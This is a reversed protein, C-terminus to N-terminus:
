DYQVAFQEDQLSAHFAVHLKVAFLDLYLALGAPASNPFTTLRSIFLSGLLAELALDKRRSYCNVQGTLAALEVPRHLVM